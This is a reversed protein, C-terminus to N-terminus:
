GEDDGDGSNSHCTPYQGTEETIELAGERLEHAGVLLDRRSLARAARDRNTGSMGAM